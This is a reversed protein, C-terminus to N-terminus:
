MQVFGYTSTDRSHYHAAPSLTSVNREDDRLMQATHVDPSFTSSARLPHKELFGLVEPASILDSEFFTCSGGELM